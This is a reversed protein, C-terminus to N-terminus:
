RAGGIGLQRMIASLYNNNLTTPMGQGNARSMIMKLAELLNTYSRQDLGGMNESQIVEPTPISNTVKIEEPKFDNLGKGIAAFTGSMESANGFPNIGYEQMLSYYDDLAGMKGNALMNELDMMQMAKQLQAQAVASNYAQLAQALQMNKQGELDSLNRNTTTNIENRANGYNNEMSARTTESAGGTIGQASMQQDFNKATLMKNVYAQKLSEAADAKINKASRGYADELAGQASALNEAMAAMYAGYAEELAGMSSDYADQIMGNRKNLWDDWPNTQMMGTVDVGLGGGSRGGLKSTQGFTSLKPTRSGLSGSNVGFSSPYGRDRLSSGLPNYSYNRYSNANFGSNYKMPDYSSAWGRYKLDRAM